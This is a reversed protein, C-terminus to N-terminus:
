AYTGEAVAHDWSGVKFGKGILLQSKFFHLLSNHTSISGTKGSEATLSVLVLYLNFYRM